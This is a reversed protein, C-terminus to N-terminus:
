FFPLAGFLSVGIWSLSVIVFGERAYIVYSKPRFVRILFYGLAAAIGATILFAWVAEEGYIVEGSHYDNVCHSIFLIEVKSFDIEKLAAITEPFYETGNETIETHEQIRFDGSVIAKSLSVM